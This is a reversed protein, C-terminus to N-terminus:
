FSKSNSWIFDFLVKMSYIMSSSDTWMATASQLSRDDKRTFFIMENGDKMVFCLKDQINGPMCKIQKKDM